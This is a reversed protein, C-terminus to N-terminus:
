ASARPRRDARGTAPASSRRIRRRPPIGLAGDYCTGTSLRVGGCLRSAGSSEMESGRFALHTGEEKEVRIEAYDAVSKKLAESLRDQMQAEMATM